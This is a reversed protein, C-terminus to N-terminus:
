ATPKMALYSSFTGCIQVVDSKEDLISQPYLWQAM